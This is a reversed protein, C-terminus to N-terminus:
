PKGGKAAAEAKTSAPKGNLTFAVGGKVLQESRPPDCVFRGTARIAQAFKEADAHSRAQGEVLIGSPDVRLDVVRIRLSEPLSGVIQNFSDLASFPEPMAGSSGRLGELRRTESALRREVDIPTRTNPFVRQHLAAEESLAQDVVADYRYARLHAAASVAVLTVIAVIVAVKLPLALRGWPNEHGLSDRRLDIWGADEGELLHVAARAALDAITQHEMIRCALSAATCVDTMPGVPLTGIVATAPNPSLGPHGLMEAKIARVVEDAEPPTTHWARPGKSLSLAPPGEAVRIVDVHTATALLFYEADVNQGERLSEWLALLPTPCIAATEVGAESLQAVLRVLAASEVAVGLATGGAAPLFDATMEEADIPLHEELRFMLTQRKETSNRPVNSCDIPAVFTEASSVGLCVGGGKYGLRALAERLAPAPNGGAEEPLVPVVETTVAGDLGVVAVTIETPELLISFAPTKM